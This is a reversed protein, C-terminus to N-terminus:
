PVAEGVCRFGASNARYEPELRDRQSTREFEAAFSWGGGRLVRYQGSSPGHPNQEPSQRYYNEGYWDATWESVNGLIDYLKWDNPQKEWVQHTKGDSNESYWAIAKLDGYRATTSGARAAYEWEAETPLRMGVAACYATAEGWSVQEVPLHEGRFYSPNKGMVRQYATQTVLSQGMWFGKAITVSHAPQEDRRCDDDSPSCGMQFAGPPIWVYRLGDKSSWLTQGQQLTPAAYARANTATRPDAEGVCRFGFYDFERLNPGNFYRVSARVSEASVIWSGGRGARYSGSSPGRPDQSPSQMYYGADYWDATWQWVNGLMDYLNWANPQKQGVEHMQYRSNGTYWAIADVDGYRSATSGARAAYEWEAETPLRMGVATCYAAAEEWTVNEVPLRDGHFDSPNAGTVRQYAAQTVPTQGMWFGKSITVSHAPKEDDNCENDGPSCGMRFTGPPIWVYMLDDKPNSQISRASPQNKTQALTILTFPLLLGLM